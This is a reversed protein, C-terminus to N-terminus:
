ANHLNTNANEIFKIIEDSIGIHGDYSPHSDDILGKTDSFITKKNEIVYGYMGNSHIEILNSPKILFTPWIDENIIYVIVGMSKLINSIQLIRWVGREYYKGTSIYEAFFNRITNYNEKNLIVNRNRLSEQGNNHQLVDKYEDLYEKEINTSFITKFFYPSNSISFLESDNKYKSADYGMLTKEKLFPFDYRGITSTQLIVIDDKNIETLFKLCTDGISETTMGNKSKNILQLNFNDSVIEPWIKKNLDIYNKYTKSYYSEISETSFTGTIEYRCGHGATFSDGFTWLKKM